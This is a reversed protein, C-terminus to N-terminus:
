HCTLRTIIQNTVMFYDCNNRSCYEVFSITQKCRPATTYYSHETQYVGGTLKDHGFICLLGHTTPTNSEVGELKDIIQLAKDYSMGEFSYGHDDVIIMEYGISAAPITFTSLFIAITVLTFITRKM